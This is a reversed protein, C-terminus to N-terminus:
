IVHVQEKAKFRLRQMLRFYRSRLTNEPEAFLVAIEAFPVYRFVRLEILLRDQDTLAALLEEVSLRSVAEEEPGAAPIPGSCSEPIPRGLRRWEDIWTNRGITLVWSIFSSQSQIYRDLNKLVKEFTMQVLDDISDPPVRLYRLFSILSPIHRDILLELAGSQGNRAQVILQIDSLDTTM